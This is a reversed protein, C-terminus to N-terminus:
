VSTRQLPRGSLLLFLQKVERRVNDWALSAASRPVALQAPASPPAVRTRVGFDCCMVQIIKGEADIFAPCSAPEKGEDTTDWSTADPMAVRLRDPRCPASAGRFPSHPPNTAPLRSATSSPHRMRHTGMHACAGPSISSMGSSACPRSIAGGSNSLPMQCFYHPSM